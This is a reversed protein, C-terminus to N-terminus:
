NIPHYTHLDNEAILGKVALIANSMQRRTPYRAPPESTFVSPIEHASLMRCFGVTQPDQSYPLVVADITKSTLFREALAFSQVVHTKAGASIFSQRLAFAAEGDPDVILISLNKLSTM